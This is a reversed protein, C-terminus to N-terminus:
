GTPTAAGATLPDEVTSPAASADARRALEGRIAEGLVESEHDNITDYLDRSETRSTAGGSLLQAKDVAVGSLIILDHADMTPILEILRALAAQAAVRFQEARDDQTKTRLYVFEPKDLWYQITTKPIGTMREAHTVGEVVAIGVTKARTKADYRRRQPM